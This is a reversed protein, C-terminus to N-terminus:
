ILSHKHHIKSPIISTSFEDNPMHETFYPHTDDEDEDEDEDENADKDEDGEEIIKFTLSNFKINDKKEKESQIILGQHIRLM